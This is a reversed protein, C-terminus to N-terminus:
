QGFLLDVGIIDVLRACATGSSRWGADQLVGWISPAVITFRGCISPTGQQPSRFGRDLTLRALTPQERMEKTLKNLLKKLV